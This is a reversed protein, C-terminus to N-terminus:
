RAGTKYTAGLSAHMRHELGQLKRDPIQFRDAVAASDAATTAAYLAGFKHSLFFAAVTFRRLIRERDQRVHAEVECQAFSQLSNDCIRDAPLAGGSSPLTPPAHTRDQSRRTEPLSFLHSELAALRAARM